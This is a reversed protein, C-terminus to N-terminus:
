GCVNACRNLVASSGRGSSRLSRAANSAGLLMGRSLHLNQAKASGQDCQEATREHLEEILELTEQRNAEIEPGAPVPPLHVLPFALAPHARKAAM